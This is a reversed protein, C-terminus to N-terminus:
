PYKLYQFGDFPILDYLGDERPVLLYVKDFYQGFPWCGWKIPVADGHQTLRAVERNHFAVFEARSTVCLRRLEDHGIVRREEHQRETDVYMWARYYFDIYPRAKQEFQSTLGALFDLEEATYPRRWWEIMGGPIFRQLSDATDILLYLTDRGNYFTDRSQRVERRRFDNYDQRSKEKDRGNALGEDNKELIEQLRESVAQVKERSFVAEAVFMGIILLMLYKM